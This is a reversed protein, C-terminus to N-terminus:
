VVCGLRRSRGRWTPRGVSDECSDSLSLLLVTCLRVSCSAVVGGIWEDTSLRSNGKQKPTITKSQNMIINNRNSTPNYQYIRIIIYNSNFWFHTFSSLSSCYLLLLSSTPIMKYKKNKTSQSLM